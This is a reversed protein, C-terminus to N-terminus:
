PSETRAPGLVQSEQYRRLATESEDAWHGAALTKAKSMLKVAAIADGRLFAFRAQAKLSQVNPQHGALAGILPAAADLDSDDMHANALKYELTNKKSAWTTERLRSLATNFDDIAAQTNGRTTEIDGLLEMAEVESPMIEHERSQKLVKLATTEAQDSQEDLLDLQALKLDTQLTRKNDQIDVFVARGELYHLRASETDGIAKQAAALQVLSTGEFLRDRTERAVKIASEAAKIADEYQGRATYVVSLMSHIRGVGVRDGIEQRIELSRHHYDEAEELKGQRRRLYGTNNLMMAENRRDGVERFAHLAMELDAAADLLEGRAMKLNARGSYLQGPLTERGAGQYALVALDLLKEAETLEGRDKLVISLNQLVRANLEHDGIEETMQLAEEYASQALDLRGTRNYLIGLTMLVQALPRSSGLQRQEQVLTTLEAEAQESEGLIRLCAAHEFRPAFLEPEQDIIVRYLQVAETCRGELTFAMGRAFAENNFPDESVLPTAGALRSRRLVRGYVAQVVGYALNTGEDGVITGRHEDGDPGLLSYNMRLALGEPELQMALTHTAAYVQRLKALLTENAPDALDGSWGFNDALSIINGVPVIQMSGDAAILKSTFSMLGLSVWALEPNDTDDLLPLVAIRIQKGPTPQGRQLLWSLGGILLLALTIWLLPSSRPGAPTVEIVAPSVASEAPEQGTLEAIFRYGHGHLTKIVQQGSADDGVARRAKMVARTLATETVIMGPWVADQLEGKDVARDRNLVLYVLLDFVRPEVEVVEGRVKLERRAPDLMFDGFCFIDNNETV